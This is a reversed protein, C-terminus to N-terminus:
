HTPVLALMLCGAPTTFAPVHAIGIPSAPAVDMTPRINCRKGFRVPKLGLLQQMAKCDRLRSSMEECM